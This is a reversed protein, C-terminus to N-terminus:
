SWQPATTIFGFSLAPSLMEVDIPGLHLPDFAEFDETHVDSIVQLPEDVGVAHHLHLLQIVAVAIAGDAAESSARDAWRMPPM